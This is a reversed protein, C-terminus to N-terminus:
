LFQEYKHAGERLATEVVAARGIDSYLSELGLALQVLSTTNLGLVRLALDWEEGFCWLGALMIATEVDPRGEPKVELALAEDRLTRCPAPPVCGNRFAVVAEAFLGVDDAVNQLTVNAM